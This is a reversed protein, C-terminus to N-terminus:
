GNSGPELRALLRDRQEDQYDEFAKMQDKTLYREMREATNKRSEKMDKSLERKAKRDLQSWDDMEDVGHQQAIAIRERIGSKLILEVQSWQYNSLQLDERYQELEQQVRERVSPEGTEDAQAGATIPGVVLSLLIFSQIILRM